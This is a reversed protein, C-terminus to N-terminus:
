TWAPVEELTAAGQIMPQMREAPGSTPHAQLEVVQFGARRIAALADRNPHCGGAVRRSVPTLRDQWRATAPNDSRVHELFLLRGGPRLVRRVEALARDPDGVSCFVLTAVVTDVSDDTVPLREAPAAVVPVARGAEGLRAELRRRMHPDPETLMLDLSRPYLDLNAGTGAGLELVTGHADALLQERRPRMVTREYGANLHDYLAAFLRSM